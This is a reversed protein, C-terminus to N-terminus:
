LLHWIEAGFKMGLDVAILTFMVAQFLSDARVAPEEPAPGQLWSKRKGLPRFSSVLEVAM